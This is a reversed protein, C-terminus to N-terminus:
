RATKARLAESGKPGGSICCCIVKQRFGAPATDCARSQTRVSIPNFKQSRYIRQGNKTNCDRFLKRVSQCASKSSTSQLQELLTGKETEQEQSWPQAVAQFSRLAAVTKSVSGPGEERASPDKKQKSARKRATQGESFRKPDKATDDQAIELGLEAGLESLLTRFSKRVSYTQQIKQTVSIQFEHCMKVLDGKTMQAARPLKRWKRQLAQKQKGDRIAVLLAQQQAAIDDLRSDEWAYHCTQIGESAIPILRGTQLLKDIAVQPVLLKRNFSGGPDCIFCPQDIQAGVHM